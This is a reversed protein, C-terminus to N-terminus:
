PKVVLIRRIEKHRAGSRATLYLAYRGPELRTALRLPRRGAPMTRKRLHRVLKEKNGPLELVLDGSVTSRVGLWVWAVYAHNQRRLTVSHFLTPIVIPNVTLTRAPSNVVCNYPDGCYFTVAHWHYDAPKRTWPERSRVEYTNAQGAVRTAITTEVVDAHVFSGDPNTAGTTSVEIQPLVTPSQALATFRFVVEAGTRFTAGDSPRQVTIVDNARATAGPLLLGCALAVAGLLARSPRTAFLGMAMVM